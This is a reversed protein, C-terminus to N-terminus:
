ASTGWSYILFAEPLQAFVSQNNWQAHMRLGLEYRNLQQIFTPLPPILGNSYDTVTAAFEAQTIPECVVSEANRTFYPESQHWDLAEMAKIWFRLPDACDSRRGQIISIGQESSRATFDKYGFYVVELAPTEGGCESRWRTLFEKRTFM